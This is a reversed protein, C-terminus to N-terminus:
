SCSLSSPIFARTTLIGDQSINSYLQVFSGNYRSATSGDETVARTATSNADGNPQCWYTPRVPATTPMRWNPAEAGSLTKCDCNPKVTSFIMAAALACNFSYRLAPSLRPEVIIPRAPPFPGM